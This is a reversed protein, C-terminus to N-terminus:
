MGNVLRWRKKNKIITTAWNKNRAKEGDPVFGESASVVAKTNM